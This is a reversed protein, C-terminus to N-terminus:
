VATCHPMQRAPPTVIASLAIPRGEFLSAQVKQWVASAAPDDGPQLTAAGAGLSVALLLAALSRLIRIM